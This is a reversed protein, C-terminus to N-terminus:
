RTRALFASHRRPHAALIVFSIVVHRVGSVQQLVFDSEIHHSTPTVWLAVDPHTNPDDPLAELMHFRLSMRIYAALPTPDTPLARWGGDPPCGLLLRVLRAQRLRLEELETAGRSFDRVVDHMKVGDSGDALLLNRDLLSFVHKRLQMTKGRGLPPELQKHACWVLELAPMPVPVDEPAVALAAFLERTDVDKIAALSSGVVREGLQGLGGTAEDGGGDLLLQGPDEILLELVQPCAILETM